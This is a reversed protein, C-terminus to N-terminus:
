TASASRPLTIPLAPRIARASRVTTRADAARSRRRTTSSITSHAFSVEHADAPDAPRVPDVAGEEDLIRALRLLAEGAARAQVDLAGDRLDDVRLTSGTSAAHDPEVACDGAAGLEEDRAGLERLSEGSPPRFDLDARWRAWQERTVASIPTQDWEGYDLEVWRDDIEVPVGFAEATERCRALPSCVVRAPAAVVSRLSAAQERGAPDLAPDARGLLLGGANAATRGHRVLYLTM